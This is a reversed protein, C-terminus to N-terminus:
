VSAKAIGQALFPKIARKVGRGEQVPILISANFRENPQFM